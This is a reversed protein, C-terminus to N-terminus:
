SIYARQFACCVWWKFDFGWQSRSDLNEAYVSNNDEYSFLHVVDSQERISDKRYKMFNQLTILPDEVVPMLNESTWTEMAVLVIRTNLQEQFIQRCLHVETIAFASVDVKGFHSCVDQCTTNTSNLHLLTQPEESHRSHQSCSQCLKQNPQKLSAAACVSSLSSIWLHSLFLIWWASWCLITRIKVSKFLLDLTMKM